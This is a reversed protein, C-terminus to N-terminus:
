LLEVRMYELAGYLSVNYDTIVWVPITRLLAAHQHSAHFTALFADSMFLPANHAAIGGVIYLGGLALTALAWNRACRAYYDAYLTYTDMARQDRTRCAFIQDPHPVKNAVAQDQLAYTRTAGLFNYLMGIARGSIVEEWSVTTSQYQQQIYAILEIDLQNHAAFDMHGGESPVGTYRKLQAVWHMSSAGLGTGAGLLARNGRENCQGAQIQVRNEPAILDIGYGIVLFDNVLNVQKLGTARMIAATDIILPANTLRASTYPATVAAAVAFCAREVRLAYRQEVYRLLDVVLTTFDDITATKVHLSRILISAGTRIQGIGFNCNTGGIDGVLFFPHDTDSVEAYTHEVYEIMAIEQLVM